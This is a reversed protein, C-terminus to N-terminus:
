AIACQAKVLARPNIHGAKRAEFYGSHDSPLSFMPF